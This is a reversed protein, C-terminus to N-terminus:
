AHIHRGRGKVTTRDSRRFLEVIFDILPEYREAAEFLHGYKRQVHPPLSAAATKWFSDTAAEGEYHNRRAAKEAAAARAYASHLTHEM